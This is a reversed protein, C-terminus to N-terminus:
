GTSAVQALSPTGQARQGPGVLWCPESRPGTRRETCAGSGHGLGKAMSLSPLRAGGSCSQLPAATVWGSPRGTAVEGLLSHSGPVRTALGEPPGTTTKGKGTSACLLGGLHSVGATDPWLAGRGRSAGVKENQYATVSTFATEPFSFTQLLSWRPSFLDDAQLAHLRPRYRHMSHLIIQLLSPPLSSSTPPPRGTAAPTGFTSGKLGMGPLMEERSAASWSGKRLLRFPHTWKCIPVFSSAAGGQWAAETVADQERGAQPALVLDAGRDGGGWEWGSALFVSASHLRFPAPASSSTHLLLHLRPTAPMWALRPAEQRAPSADKVPWGLWAEWSARGQGAGPGERGGCQGRGRRGAGWRLGRRSVHGHQDLTNNTLKLKQFSIPEKTWHSGLAPSDPHVYTRCPLQPEAKGAM